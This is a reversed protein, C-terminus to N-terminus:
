TEAPRARPGLCSACRSHINTHSRSTLFAEPTCVAPESRQLMSVDLARVSKTTPFSARVSKTTYCQFMLALTACARQAKPSVRPPVEVWACKADYPLPPIHLILVTVDIRSQNPPYSVICRALELPMPAVNHIFVRLRGALQGGCQAISCRICARNHGYGGNTIDTVYGVRRSREPNM